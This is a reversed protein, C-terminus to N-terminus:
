TPKRGIFVNREDPDILVEVEFGVAALLQRWEDRGFLGFVHEEAQMRVQRDPDRMLYAFAVRYSSGNTESPYTWELYRLACGDGDHGGHQTSPAFTERVCDPVFLAVGGSRCHVYATEMARRLEDRTKMYMIADHVFVADFLRDLRVTRMDGVIHECEPNLQRSVALMESSLDVLAMQFHSKLFSANNGGGSGLELLSKPVPACAEQLTTRFFDAEEAYDDPKSLLPWWPAFERYL